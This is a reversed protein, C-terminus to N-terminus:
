ILDEIKTEDNKSIQNWYNKLGMSIKNRYETSRPHAQNYRRLSQRIKEKTASAVARTSRKYNKNEM